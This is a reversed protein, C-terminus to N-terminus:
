RLGNADGIGSVYAYTFLGVMFKGPQSRDTKSQLVSPKSRVASVPPYLRDDLRDALRSVTGEDSAVSTRSCSGLSPPIGSCSLRVSSSWIWLPFIRTTPLSSMITLDEPIPVSLALHSFHLMPTTEDCGEKMALQSLPFWSQLLHVARSEASSGVIAM